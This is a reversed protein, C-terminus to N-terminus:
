KVAASYWTSEPVDNFPNQLDTVDPQGSHRYLIMVIMARTLTSNTGFRDAAVGLMLGNEYVYVAADFFWDGNKVDSFPLAALPIPISEIEIEANEKPTNSNENGGGISGSGSYLPASASNVTLVFTFTADPTIGNSAKLKITYTGASLGQAIDLKKTIDNWSINADGSTKTVTVPATGTIIYEGTSAATYDAQLSMTATGTIAPASTTTAPSQIRVYKNDASNNYEAGGPVTVGEGSPDSAVTNIWYTYTEPLEVSQTIVMRLSTFQARNM